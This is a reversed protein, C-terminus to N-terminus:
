VRVEKNQHLLYPYGRQQSYDTTSFPTQTLANKAISKMAESVWKLDDFDEVSVFRAEDIESAAIPIQNPLLSVSYAIFVAPGIDTLNERIAYIGTVKGEVACEERLERLAADRPLEGEDVYGKPLGWHGSYRGASEKVLLIQYNKTVVAAVGLDCRVSGM